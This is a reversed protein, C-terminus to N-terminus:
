MDGMADTAPLCTAVDEECVNAENKVTRYFKGVNRVKENPHLVFLRVIRSNDNRRQVLLTSLAVQVYPDAEGLFLELLRNLKNIEINTRALLYAAQMRLYRDNDPNVLLNWAHSQTSSSISSLYRAARFCEAEQYPFILQNDQIMKMIRPEISRKRPFFKSATVLKRTLKHDANKSIEKLLRDVYADSDILM